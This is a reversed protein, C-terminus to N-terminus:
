LYLEFSHHSSALINLGLSPTHRPWEQYKHHASGRCPSAASCISVAMKAKWKKEYFCFDEESKNWNAFVPVLTSGEDFNLPMVQVKLFYPIGIYGLKNIWKDKSLCKLQKM